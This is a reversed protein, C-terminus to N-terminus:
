SIERNVALDDSRDDQVPISDMFVNSQQVLSGEFGDDSSEM